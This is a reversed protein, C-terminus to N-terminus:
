VTNHKLWSLWGSVLVGFAMFWVALLMGFALFWGAISM